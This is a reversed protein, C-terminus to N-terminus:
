EVRIPLQVFAAAQENEFIAIARAIEGALENAPTWVWGDASSTGVGAVQGSAGAYFAQGLGLYLVTVEASTGDPLARVESTATIVGDFKNVENLIGVVNQFREGLSLKTEEAGDKPPAPLRQSLPKVRERIPEPLRALLERTRTELGAVTGTLAGSSEKLRENQEFLEARDEDAKAISEEADAIREKLSDIEHQVLEIRDQLVERGLAWDRKEQSIVRRIEVWQELMARAEGVDPEQPVPAAGTALLGAGLVGLAGLTVPWGLTRLAGRRGAGRKRFRTTENM